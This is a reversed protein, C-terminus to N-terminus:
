QLFTNDLQIQLSLLEELAVDSQGGRGGARELADIQRKILPAATTDYPAQSAPAVVADEPLHSGVAAVADTLAARSSASIRLWECEGDRWTSVTTDHAVGDLKAARSSVRGDTPAAVWGAARARTHWISAADTMQSHLVFDVSAPLLHESKAVASGRPAASNGEAARDGLAITGVVDPGLGDRGGDPHLLVTAHRLPGAGVAGGCRGVVRVICTATAGPRITPTPVCQSESQLPRRDSSALSVAPLCATAGINKLTVYVVTGTAEMSLVALAARPCEATAAPVADAPGAASPAGASGAAAGPEWLPQLHYPARVKDGEALKHCLHALFRRKRDLATQAVAVDWRAKDVRRAVVESLEHLVQARLGSGETGASAKKQETELEMGPGSAPDCAMDVVTLQM